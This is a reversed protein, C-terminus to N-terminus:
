VKTQRFNFILMEEGKVKRKVEKWDGVTDNPKAEFNGTLKEDGSVDEAKEWNISFGQKNVMLGQIYLSLEPTTPVYSYVKAGTNVNEGHIQIAFEGDTFRLVTKVDEDAIGIRGRKVAAMLDKLSMKTADEQQTAWINSKMGQQTM